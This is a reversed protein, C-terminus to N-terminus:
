DQRALHRVRLHVFEELEVPAFGIEVNLNGNAIDDQTMTDSGCRVYYAEGPSDGRFVGKVYLDHMFKGVSLRIKSWLAEDNSEFLAWGTGRYVSEEIFSGLRGAPLHKWQSSTEDRDVDPLSKESNEM